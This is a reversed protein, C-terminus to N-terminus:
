PIDFNLLMGSFLRLQENRDKYKINVLEAQQPRILCKGARIFSFLVYQFTNIAELPLRHTGWCMLQKHRNRWQKIDDPVRAFQGVGGLTLGYEVRTKNNPQHFTCQYICCDASIEAFLDNAIQQMGLLPETSLGFYKPVLNGSGLRLSSIRVDALRVTKKDIETLLGQVMARNTGGGGGSLLFWPGPASALFNQTLQIVEEHDETIAFTRNAIPAFHHHFGHQLHRIEESTRGNGSPKNVVFLASGIRQQPSIGTQFQTQPKMGQISKM